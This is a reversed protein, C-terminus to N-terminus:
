AAVLGKLRRRRGPDVAPGPWHLFVDSRRILGVSAAGDSSTSAEPGGRGNFTDERLRARLDPPDPLCAEGRERSQQRDYM